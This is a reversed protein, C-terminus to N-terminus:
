SGELLILFLLVFGSMGSWCCSLLLFVCFLLSSSLDAVFDVLSSTSFCLLVLLVLVAVVPALVTCKPVPTSFVQTLGSYTSSLVRFMAVSTAEVLHDVAIMLLCGSSSCCHSCHRRCCCSSCFLNENTIRQESKALNFDHSYNPAQLSQM